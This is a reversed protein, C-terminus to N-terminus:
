WLGLRRWRNVVIRCGTRHSLETSAVRHERESRASKAQQGSQKNGYSVGNESLGKRSQRNVVKSTATVSATRASDKEVKGTSWKAQQRLQRRERQTRKSKAQQDDQENDNNVDDESLGKM